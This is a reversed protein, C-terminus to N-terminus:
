LNWSELDRDLSCCGAPGAAVIGACRPLVHAVQIEQEKCDHDQDRGEVSEFLREFLGRFKMMDQQMKTWIAAISAKEIRRVAIIINVIEVFRM